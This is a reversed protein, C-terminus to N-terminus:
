AILDIDDSEDTLTGTLWIKEHNSWELDTIGGTVTRYGTEGENAAENLKKVASGLKEEPSTGGEGDFHARSFNHLETEATATHIGAVRQIPPSRQTTCTIYGGDDEAADSLREYYSRKDTM